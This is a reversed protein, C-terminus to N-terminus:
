ISFLVLRRTITEEPRPLLHRGIPRKIFFELSFRDPPNEMQPKAESAARSRFLKEMTVDTAPFEVEISKRVRRRGPGRGVGTVGM